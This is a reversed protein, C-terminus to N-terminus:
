INNTGIVIQNPDKPHQKMDLFAEAGNGGGQNLVVASVDLLHHKTIVAQITRALQDTGGGPGGAVIIQLNSEPQWAALAPVTSACFLSCAALLHTLHRGPFTPM